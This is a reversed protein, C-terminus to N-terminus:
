KMKDNRVKRRKQANQVNQVNPYSGNEDILKIKIMHQYSTIYNAYQAFTSSQIGFICTLRLLHRQYPEMYSIIFNPLSHRARLHNIIENIVDNRLETDKSEISKYYNTFYNGIIDCRYGHGGHSIINDIANQIISSEFYFEGLANHINPESDWVVFFLRAYDDWSKITGFFKFDESFYDATYVSEHPIPTPVFIEDYQQTYSM